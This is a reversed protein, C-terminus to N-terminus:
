AAKRLLLREVSDLFEEPSFPKQLFEVCGPSMEATSLLGRRQLEPMSFGSIYLLRMLPQLPRVKRVVAPGNSGDLVVDAVLLDISKLLEECTRLVCPENACEIINAATKELLIHLVLLTNTDDDLLLITRDNKSRVLSPNGTM